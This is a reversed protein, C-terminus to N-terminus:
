SPIQLCLFYPLLSLRWSVPPSVPSILSIGLGGDALQDTQRMLDSGPGLTSM